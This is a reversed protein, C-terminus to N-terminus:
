TFSPINIIQNALLNVDSHELLQWKLFGAASVSHRQKLFTIIFALLLAM